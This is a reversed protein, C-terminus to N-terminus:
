AYNAGLASPWLFQETSEFGCLYLAGCVHRIRLIHKQLRNFAFSPQSRQSRKSKDPIYFDMCIYAKIQIIRMYTYMNIPWLHQPLKMFRSQKAQGVTPGMFRSSFQKIQWKTCNKCFSKLLNMVVSHAM